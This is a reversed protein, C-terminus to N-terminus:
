ENEKVLLIFPITLLPFVSIIRFGKLLGFHDGLYGTIISAFTSTFFSLAMLLSSITGKYEPVLEQAFAYRVPSVSFMFVGSFLLFIYRYVIMRTSLFLNILITIAVSSLLLFKKRGMFDSATGGILAGFAGSFELVSLSSGAIFMAFGILKMYTPLFLTFSYMTFSHLVSIIILMVLNIGGKKLLAFFSFDPMSGPESTYGTRITFFLLVAFIIGPIATVMIYREPVFHIVAVLYLPGLSRALEGGTMFFSMGTGYKRGSLSGVLYIANAHFFSASLGAFVLFLGAWFYTGSAIFLSMLLSTTILAVPLFKYLKGRDAYYGIFPQVLSSVRFLPLLSGAKILSLGLREIIIPLFPSLFATYVDHAFHTAACIIVRGLNFEIVRSEEINNKNM